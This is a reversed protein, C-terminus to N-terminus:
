ACHRLDPLSSQQLIARVRGRRRPRHVVRMLEAIVMQFDRCEHQSTTLELRNMMMSRGHHGVTPFTM